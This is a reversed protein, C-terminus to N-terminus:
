VLHDFGRTSTRGAAAGNQFGTVGFSSTANTNVKGTPIQNAAMDKWIRMSGNVRYADVGDIKSMYITHSLPDDKTKKSLDSKNSNGGLMTDASEARINGSSAPDFQRVIVAPKFKPPLSLEKDGGTKGRPLSQVVDDGLKTTAM